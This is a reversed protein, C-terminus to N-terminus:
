EKEKLVKITSIERIYQDIIKNLENLIKNKPLYVKLFSKDIEIVKESLKNLDELVINQLDNTCEILCYDNFDLVNYIQLDMNIQM